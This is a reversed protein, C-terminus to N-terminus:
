KWFKKIIRDSDKDDDADDSETDVNPNEFIAGCADCVWGGHFESLADSYLCWPCLGQELEKIEDPTATFHYYGDDDLSDTDDIIETEKVTSVHKDTPKTYYGIYKDGFTSASVRWQWNLNSFKVGDVDQWTGVLHVDDATMVAIKNSGVLDEILNLTDLIKKEFGGRAILKSLMMTDSILKNDPAIPLVGNHMMAFESSMSLSKLIKDNNSIPFPHTNGESTGGHTTIRFHIFLDGDYEDIGASTWYRKFEDWTMFGKEIHVPYKASPTRWALGAGDPNADWCSKLTEMDPAKVGAPKYIAVCM